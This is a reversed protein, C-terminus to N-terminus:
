LQISRQSVMSGGLRALLDDLYAHIAHVHPYTTWQLLDNCLLPYTRPAFADPGYKDLLTQPVAMSVVYLTRKVSPVWWRKYQTRYVLQQCSMTARPWDGGQDTDISLIRTKAPGQAVTTSSPGLLWDLFAGMRSLPTHQFDSQAMVDPCSSSHFLHM